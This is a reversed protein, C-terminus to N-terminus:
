KTGNGPLHCLDVRNVLVAGELTGAASSDGVWWMKGQETAVTVMLVLIMMVMRTVMIIVVTVMPMRVM